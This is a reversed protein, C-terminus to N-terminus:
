KIDKITDKSFRWLLDNDRVTQNPTNNLHTEIIRYMELSTPLNHTDLCDRFIIDNIHILATNTVLCVLEYVSQEITVPTNNGIVIHDGSVVINKYNFM